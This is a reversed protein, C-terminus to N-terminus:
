ETWVANEVRTSYPNLGPQANVCLVFALQWTLKLHILLGSWPSLQLSNYTLQCDPNTINCWHSREIRILTLRLDHSHVNMYWFDLRRTIFQKTFFSVVFAEDIM